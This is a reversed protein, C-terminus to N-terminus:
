KASDVRIRGPPMNAAIPAFLFMVREDNVQVQLWGDETTGPPPDFPTLLKLKVGGFLAETMGLYCPGASGFAEGSRDFPNKKKADSALFPCVREKGDPGVVTAAIARADASSHWAPRFTLTYTLTQKPGAIAVEVREGAATVRTTVGPVLKWEEGELESVQTSLPASVREQVRAIFREVWEKRAAARAPLRPAVFTLTGARIQLALPELEFTYGGIERGGERFGNPPFCRLTLLPHKRTETEHTRASCPFTVEREGDTMTVQVLFEGLAVGPKKTQFSFVLTTGPADGVFQRVTLAADRFGLEARAGVPVKDGFLTATARDVDALSAIFTSPSPPVALSLAIALTVTLM